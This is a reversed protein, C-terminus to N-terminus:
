EALAHLLIDPKFTQSILVFSRMNKFLTFQFSCMAFGRKSFHCSITSRYVGSGGDDGPQPMNEAVDVQFRNIGRNVGSSSLKGKISLLSDISFSVVEYKSGAVGNRFPAIGVGDSGLDVECSLLGVGKAANGRKRSGEGFRQGGVGASARIPGRGVGTMVGDDTAEPVGATLVQPELRGDMHEAM